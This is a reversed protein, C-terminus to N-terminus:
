SLINRTAIFVSTDPYQSFFLLLFQNLTVIVYCTHCCLVSSLCCYPFAHLACDSTFYIVPLHSDSVFHPLCDSLPASSPPLTQLTQQCPQLPYAADALPACLLSKDEAAGVGKHTWQYQIARSTIIRVRQRHTSIHVSCLCCYYM